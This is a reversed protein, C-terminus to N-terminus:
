KEILDSSDKKSKMNKLFVMVTMITVVAGATYSITKDLHLCEPAIFIYTSCVMTMFIAPVFTVWWYNGRKRLYVTIAWLTFVSLAQNCWAFYRWILNFGEKDSVSYILVILTVAFIPLSIALRSKITKQEKNLFDAVILRASRLATDGSTIPAFVVGLLALVSGVQGLWNTTINDVILAANNEEMGHENFFYNAAAAWILAVIGETIMAGYFIPRGHKENTMCRAMLPSQTAHFGSIAGCAISVFMMPFLPMADEGAPHTNELGDWIEPLAPNTKILMVLVGVAMFILAIAFLPYVKGIVKDIPLLTALIYYIFIVGFWITPDLSTLKGLIASPGSVFVAGVLIMLIVTFVRMIKKANMGLHRGIIDPLSEGGERLSMMGALYDHVAGAFICGFVIWLYSAAGFKAGMIAGFIPGLGAINLFQIMFIRWTPLPMFDVGDQKEIAPTVRKPDPGFVNEVFKGYFFYGLILAVFAVYFSSM